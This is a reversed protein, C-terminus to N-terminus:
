KNETGNKQDQSGLPKKQTRKFQSPTKITTEM